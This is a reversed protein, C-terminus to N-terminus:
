WRGRALGYLLGEIEGSHHERQKERESLRLIANTYKQHLFSWFLEWVKEEVINKDQLYV